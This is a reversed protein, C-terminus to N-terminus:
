QHERCQGTARGGGARIGPDTAAAEVACADDSDVRVAVGAPRHTACAQACLPVRLGWGLGDQDDTQEVLSPGDDAGLEVDVPFDVVQGVRLGEGIETVEACRSLFRAFPEDNLGAQDALDRGRLPRPQPYRGRGAVELVSDDVTLGVALCIM